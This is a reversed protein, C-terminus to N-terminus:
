VNIGVDSWARVLRGAVEPVGQGGCKRAQEVTQRAFDDFSDTPGSRKVADWWIALPTLYSFGGFATAFLAFARNPIGSNIHVGFNDAEGNFFDNMHAPQPDTGIIPDDVFATGPNMMDRLARRTPTKSIAQAGILWDIHANETRQRNLWHKFCVGVVDAFSENLAGSQGIYRFGSTHQVVGHTMEHGLVTVDKVFGGTPFLTGDGDGFGMEDGDWFANAYERGVHVVIKMDGSLGDIGGRQMENAYFEFLKKANRYVVGADDDRFEAHDGERLVTRGHPLWNLAMLLPSLGLLDNVKRNIPVTEGVARAPALPPTLSERRNRFGRSSSLMKRARKRVREVVRENAAIREFIEDPVIQCHACHTM